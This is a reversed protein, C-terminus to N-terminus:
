KASIYEAVGVLYITLIVEDPKFGDTRSNDRFYNTSEIPVRRMNGLMIRNNFKKKDSVRLRPKTNQHQICQKCSEDKCEYCCFEDDSDEDDSFIQSRVNKVSEAYEALKEKIKRRAELKDEQQNNIPEKKEQFLYRINM